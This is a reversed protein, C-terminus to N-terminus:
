APRKATAKIAPKATLKPKSLNAMTADMFATVNDAVIKELEGTAAMRNTIQNAAMADLTRVRLWAARLADRRQRPFFNILAELLADTADDIADGGMSRGFDEDSIGAAEAQERCVCFLVNCLLIPDAQLRQFIEGGLDVLDVDLARRVDSITGVTIPVLWSRGHSDKFQQVTVGSLVVFL